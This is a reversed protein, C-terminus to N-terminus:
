FSVNLTVHTEWSACDVPQVSGSGLGMYPSRYYAAGGGSQTAGRMAPQANWNKLIDVVPLALQCFSNAGVRRLIKRVMHPPQGPLNYAFTQKSRIVYTSCKRALWSLTDCPPDDNVGYPTISDDFENPKSNVSTGSNGPPTLYIFTQYERVTYPSDSPITHGKSDVLHYIVSRTYDDWFDSWAVLMFGPDLIATRTASRNGGAVSTYSSADDTPTSAM